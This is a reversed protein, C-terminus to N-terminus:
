YLSSASWHDLPLERLWTWRRDRQRRSECRSFSLRVMLCELKMELISFFEFFAGLLSARRLFKRGQIRQGVRKGVRIGFFLLLIGITLHVDDLLLRQLMLWPGLLASLVQLLQFAIPKGSVHCLHRGHVSGLFRSRWGCCLSSTTRSCLLCVPGRVSPCSQATKDRLGHLLLGHEFCAFSCSAATSTLHIGALRWLLKPKGM